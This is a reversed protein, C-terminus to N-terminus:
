ELWDWDLMVRPQPPERARQPLEVDFLLRSCLRMVAAVTGVKDIGYVM